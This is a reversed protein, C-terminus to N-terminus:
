SLLDAFMANIENITKQIDKFEDSEVTTNIRDISQRVFEHDRTIQEVSYKILEVMTEFKNKDIIISNEKQPNTKQKNKFQEMDTKIKQSFDKLKKLTEADAGGIMTKIKNKYLNRDIKSNKM